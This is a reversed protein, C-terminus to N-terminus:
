KVFEKAYDGFTMATIQPNVGLSSPFVSADAVFLNDYGYVKMEENITGITSNRSMVNGGQPHGTGLALDKPGKIKEGLSEINSMDFKYYGFTDPMVYEAGATLYIKGGLTLAEIMKKYDDDSPEFRIERGTLGSTHVSAYSGTGVLVGVGAIRNYDLMNKYHDEFWGPMAVSQFMPPNYWTEYVYGHGPSLKLYHSIQLGAYSNIVQPFKAAIPSAMNFSLRKGATSVAIGSNILLISSSIAGASVVFKNGRIIIKRGNVFKGVASTILKGSGKLKIVECGALIELKGKSNAQADPLITVLMSLKKGYSCGINCYGCGLCDKINASVSRAEDPSIDLGMKKCGDIFLSGGPNLNSETSMEPVSRVGVLRNVYAQSKKFKELDIGADLEPSCWRELVEPPTDFCVANNVVTSGGV